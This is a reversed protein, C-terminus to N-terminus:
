KEKEGGAFLFKHIQLSFVIDFQKNALLYAIMQDPEIKGLVPSVAFNQVGKKALRKKIRVADRLDAMSGCVFKVWSNRPLSEFVSAKMKTQMGSSKLKYDVVWNVIAWNPLKVSGNTEVSVRYGAHLLQGLLAVSDAQLMPEGGTLLVHSGNPALEKVRRLIEYVAMQQSDKATWTKKTDCWRCRLNCGGLRIFITPTGQPVGGVEGSISTFISYVNLM